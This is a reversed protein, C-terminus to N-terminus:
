GLDAATCKKDRPHDKAKVSTQSIAQLMAGWVHYDLPNLDPSYPVTAMPGKRHLRHLEGEIM